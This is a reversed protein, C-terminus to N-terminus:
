MTKASAFRARASRERYARAYMANAILGITFGFAGSFVPLLWCFVITWVLFQLIMSFFMSAGFLITAILAFEGLNFRLIPWWGRLDFAASFSDHAIMHTIAVPLLMSAVLSILMGLLMGIGSGFTTFTVLTFAAGPQVDPGNLLGVLFPSFAMVSYGAVMTVFLPLMIILNITSIRLGDYLLQSWDEWEPLHPEQGNLVQRLIRATYGAIFISPILFLPLSLFAMVSGLMLKQKWNTGHFPFSFVAAVAIGL